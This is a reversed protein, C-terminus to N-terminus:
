PRAKRRAPRFEWAAAAVVMVAGGAVMAIGWEFRAHQLAASAWMLAPDVLDPQDAKAVVTAATHQFTAITAILQVLAVAGTLLLPKFRKSLALVISLGAAGLIVMEGINCASFYRPHRLYSITGVIPIHILPADVGAALVAGGFLGLLVPFQSVRWLRGLPDMLPSPSPGAHGIAGNRRGLTIGPILIPPKLKEALGQIRASDDFCRQKSM